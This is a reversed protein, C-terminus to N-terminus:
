SVPPPKTSFPPGIKEPIRKRDLCTVTTIHKILGDQMICTVAVQSLGCQKLTNVLTPAIKKLFFEQLQGGGQGVYMKLLGTQWHMGRTTPVRRM